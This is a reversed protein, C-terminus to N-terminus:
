VYNYSHKSLWGILIVVRNEPVSHRWQVANVAPRNLRQQSSFVVRLLRIFKLTINVTKLKWNWLRDTKLTTLRVHTPRSLPSTGQWLHCSPVLIAFSCSMYPHQPMRLIAEINGKVGIPKRHRWMGQLLFIKIEHCKLVLLHIKFDKTLRNYHSRREAWIKLNLYFPHFVLGEQVPQDFLDDRALQVSLNEQYTWRAFRSTPWFYWRKYGKNPNTTCCVRPLNSALYARQTKCHPQYFHHLAGRLSRFFRRFWHYLTLNLM